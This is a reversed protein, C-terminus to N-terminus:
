WWRNSLIVCIVIIEENAVFYKHIYGRIRSFVLIFKTNIITKHYAVTSGFSGLQEIVNEM